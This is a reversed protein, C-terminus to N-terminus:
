KKIWKAYLCLENFDEGEALQPVANAFDWQNICDSETYWGGFKYGSITPEPPISKISEGYEVYDVYYYETQYQKPLEEVNLRYSVNAKYFPVNELTGEPLLDVFESYKENPVYVRFQEDAVYYLNIPKGCYFWSIDDINGRSFYGPLMTVITGPTYIKKLVSSGHSEGVSNMFITYGLGLVPVGNVEAAIFQMTNPEGTDNYEEIAGANYFWDGFEKLEDNYFQAYYGEIAARDRRYTVNNYTVNLEPTDSKEKCASFALPMSAIITGCLLFTLIKKIMKKM